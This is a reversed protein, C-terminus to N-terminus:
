KKKELDEDNAAAENAEKQATRYRGAIAEKMQETLGNVGETATVYEYM